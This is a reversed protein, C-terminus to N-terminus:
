GSRHPRGPSRSWSTSWPSRSPPPPGAARSRRSWRASRPPTAPRHRHAGPPRTPPAVRDVLECRCGPSPSSAPPRSSPASCAALGSLQAVFRQPGHVEFGGAGTSLNVCPYPLIEQEFAPQGELDWRVSWYNEVFPALDDPPAQRELAFHAFGESPNLIGRTGKAGM